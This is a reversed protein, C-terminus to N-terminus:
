KRIPENTDADFEVVTSDPMVRQYTLPYLSGLFDHLIGEPQNKAMQRTFQKFSLHFAKSEDRLQNAKVTDGQMRFQNIAANMERYQRDHAEKKIKWANLSDNQPTGVASSVSDVVVTVNGPEVVVLLPQVGMRYHYDVRIEALMVTDSEFHFTGNEVEMSDVNFRSDNQTPVLFIRKGNFNEPITGKIHCVNDDCAVFSLSLLALIAFILKKQM